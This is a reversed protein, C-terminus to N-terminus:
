NPDIGAGGSMNSSMRFTGGPMNSSFGSFGSGM